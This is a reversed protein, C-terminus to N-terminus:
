QISVLTTTIKMEPLESEIFTFSPDPWCNESQRLFAPGSWWLTSHPLQDPMLGRSIGDAPNVDTSVHRWVTPNSIDQIEAVHHSVFTKM